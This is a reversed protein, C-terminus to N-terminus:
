DKKYGKEELRWSIVSETEKEGLGGRILKERVENTWEKVEEEPMNAKLEAM